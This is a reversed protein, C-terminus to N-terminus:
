VDKTPPSGKKCSSDVLNHKNGKVNFHVEFTCALRKKALACTELDHNETKLCKTKGVIAQIKYNITNTVQSQASTVSILRYIKKAKSHSNFKQLASRIAAQVEASETSRESWGGLLPVNETTLIDKPAPPEGQSFHLLSSLCLLLLSLQPFMM